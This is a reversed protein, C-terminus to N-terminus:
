IIKKIEAVNAIFHDYGSFNLKTEKGYGSGVLVTTLGAKAGSIMDAEKDGIMYSESRDIDHDTIAKEILATKPKRCDCSVSFEPVSGKEYHPCYYIGAFEFGNKLAEKKIHDHLKEVDGVTFYGRAVGSQNSIIILKFGKKYLYRLAEVAGNEFEFDEIKFLYNKEVCVTGDRDLFVAKNM